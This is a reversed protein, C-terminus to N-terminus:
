MVIALLASNPTGVTLLINIRKICELNQYPLVVLSPPTEVSSLSFKSLGFHELGSCKGGAL